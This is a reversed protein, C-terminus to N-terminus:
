TAPETKGYCALAELSHQLHSEGDAPELKLGPIELGYERNQQHADLVWRCLQSLKEETGSTRVDEWRLWLAPQGEAGDFEKTYLEDFRALAQWHIHSLADGAAYRRMDTYNGSEALLHAQRGVPQDPILQKGQPAPYVLCKPLEGTMIRAEFIGLPFCSQMSTPAPKLHGRQPAPRQLIVETQEGARVHKEAGELSGLSKAWLGHRTRQSDNEVSMRYIANQGAFVPEIRWNAFRLRSVNTRTHYWGVMAIGSLLFTMAFILNNSFNVSMLFTCCILGCFGWGSPTVRIRLKFSM